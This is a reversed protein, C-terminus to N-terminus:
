KYVGKFTIKIDDAVNNKKKKSKPKGVGYEGIGKVTFTSEATITGDNVTITGTESISKTVARITLDGSVNVEYTGDKTWNVASLNDITGKFKIKPFKKSDMFNPQNFHKQMLAKEFEFSQVPISFVMSGTEKNIASTVKYNDASIDEATTHSFINAHGERTIVKQATGIIPLLIIALIVLKKM